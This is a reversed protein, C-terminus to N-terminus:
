INKAGIKSEGFAVLRRGNREGRETICEYDILRINKALISDLLGMNYPQAKITHSFFVYTRGGNYHATSCM